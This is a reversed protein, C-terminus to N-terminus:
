SVIMVYIGREFQLVRTFKFKKRFIVFRYIAIVICTAFSSNKQIEFSLISRVTPNRERFRSVWVFKMSNWSLQIKMIKQANPTQSVGLFPAQM